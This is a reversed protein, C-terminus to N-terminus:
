LVTTRRGEETFLYENARINDDVQEDENRYQDEARVYDYFWDMLLRLAARIADASETLDPGDDRGDSVEIDTNYSASGRGSQKVTATLKYGHPKQAEILDRAIMALKQDKPAWGKILKLCGKRYTYRGEFCAGDGQSYGLEWWVKPEYRTSGGMLKVPRQDLEVGLRSCIEQYDDYDIMDSFDQANGERFWERAREKAKDDLEDFTYAKVEIVQPM